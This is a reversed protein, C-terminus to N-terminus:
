QQNQSTKESHKRLEALDKRLLRLANATRSDSPEARCHTVIRELHRILSDVKYRPIEM